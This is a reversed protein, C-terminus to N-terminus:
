DIRFSEYEEKGLWFDPDVVMVEEYSIEYLKYVMEDIQKELNSTDKNNKKDSIIKDTIAEFQTQIKEKAIKIPIESLPALVLELTEGKRKGKHYLWSYYLKSNLLALIYKLKVKEDKSIIFHIDTGGFWETENYGFTNLASRQPAVIKPSVFYAEDRAYSICYYAGRKFASAIMVYSIEYNGKVFKDYVSSTIEPTGSRTNRNILIPKFNEFHCLLTSGIKTLTKSTYYILSEISHENTIWKQIDSNKFYPKLYSKEIESLELRQIEEKSLIFIGKGLKGVIDYKKIHGQTLKEAGSQVGTTLYCINSLPEGSNKVIELIADIGSGNSTENQLRIYNLAGEYIEQDPMEFYSTDEDFGSLINQLIISNAFGTKQTSIVKVPHNDKDKTLLTILNHQGAASEFIKLENFNILQRISARDKFDKRLLDAYTATIYYNTTIFNIIGRKISLNLAQHFFFYFYDMRRQHFERGLPSAKVPKFIENNGKQGIYPPNGIVVGFGDEIGFMWYKDFFLAHTNQDYPNWNAIQDASTAPFGTNILEEAIQERLIKDRDRYKRKTEPTRASFHRHRIDELQKELTYVSDPKFTSTTDLGILTNAAVFKTELNPLPKIGLNPLDSNPDQECILSIFFRLKAIQVAIPQIDVGYICNEILFLKRGYDNSNNEFAELIEKLFTAFNDADSGEMTNQLEKQAKEMQLYKWKRNDPDVKQLIHVLQQLVGMPFAGSGCAPDLVKIEDIVEMLYHVEKPEFVPDADSYSLLDAVKQQLLEKQSSIYEEIEPPTGISIDNPDDDKTQWCYELKDTLKQVLYVKLSEDVMYHVIERPTYFSGTQKRATTKTEPNYSALLNEFVKGLLEPDLAVQIDLPTNEEVTFNYSNLIDIIGRIKLHTQRNDDYALSLDVDVAGGFFLYDPVVIKNDDRDSFGDVRIIKENGQQTKETLHPKDLCEFLGGNLFPINGFLELARSPEKFYNKYRYLNTINYHQKENRFARKGMEQNLTAFFLNQLISKYYTSDNRDNLNLLSLAEEKNFLVDPVLKKQKLFWVFILRTILRITNTSNRIDKDSEADNPFEIKTLAWFYWNSLERYFDKTLTDVSFAKEIESLSVRTDFLDTSSKISTFREAATRCHQNRGFIYTYRKPDTQRRERLGTEKNVVTLESAYTFRWTDGHTFVIQAADGDSQFVKRMLNRLGVKNRDLRVKPSVSVEYIGVKLGESTDFYGLEVATADFDNKGLEIPKPVSYIHQIHLIDRLAELWAQRNYDQELISKLQEQTM